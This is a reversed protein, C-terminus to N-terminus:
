RPECEYESVRESVIKSRKQFSQLRVGALSQVYKRSKLSDLDLLTASKRSEFANYM